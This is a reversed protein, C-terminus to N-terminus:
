HSQVSDMRLTRAWIQTLTRVVEDADYEQPEVSAWHAFSSLM